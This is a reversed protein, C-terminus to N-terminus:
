CGHLILWKGQMCSCIAGPMCASRPRLTKLLCRHPCASARYFSPVTPLPLHTHKGRKEPRLALSLQGQLPSLQELHEQRGGQPRRHLAQMHRPPRVLAARTNQPSRLCHVFHESDERRHADFCFPTELASESEKQGLLCKRIFSPSRM